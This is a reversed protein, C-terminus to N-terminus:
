FTSIVEKLKVVKKNHESIDSNLIIREKGITNGLNSLQLEKASIADERDKFSMLTKTQETGQERVEANLTSLQNSKALIEEDLESAKKQKEIVQASVNTLLENQYINEKTARDTDGKLIRLNRTAISVESELNALIKKSQDIAQLQDFSLEVNKTEQNLM